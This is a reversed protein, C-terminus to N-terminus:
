DRVGIYIEINSDGPDAADAGYLEFDARYSRSYHATRPEAWIRKWTEYVVRQVPGRESRFRAYLGTPVNRSVMGPPIQSIASVKVGLLYTYEGNEDSAYDSYVAVTNADARHPIRAALDEGRFRQWMKGIAGEPTMERANSTRAEIGIVAFHELQVFDM